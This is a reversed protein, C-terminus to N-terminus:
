KTVEKHKLRGYEIMVLKGINDPLNALAQDIYQKDAHLADREAIVAALDARLTALREQVEIQEAKAKPAVARLESLVELLSRLTYIATEAEIESVDGLEDGGALYAELTALARDPTWPADKLEDPIM